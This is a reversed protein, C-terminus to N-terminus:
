VPYIAAGVERVRLQIYYSYFPETSSSRIKAELSTSGQEYGVVFIYLNELISM